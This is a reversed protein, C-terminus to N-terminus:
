HKVLSKYFPLYLSKSERYSFCYIDVFRVTNFKSSFSRGYEKQRVEELLLFLEEVITKRCQWTNDKYLEEYIWDIQEDLVIINM